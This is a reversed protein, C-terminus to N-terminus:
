RRLERLIILARERSRSGAYRIRSRVIELEEEWERGQPNFRGWVAESKKHRRLHM